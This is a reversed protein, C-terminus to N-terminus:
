TDLTGSAYRRMSRCLQDLLETAGNIALPVLVKHTPAVDLRRLSARSRTGDLQAEDDYCIFPYYTRERKWFAGGILEQHHQSLSARLQTVTARLEVDRLSQDIERLRNAADTIAHRPNDLYAKAEGATLGVDGCDYIAVLDLGHDNVDYKLLTKALVTGAPHIDAHQSSLHVLLHSLGELLWPYQTSTKYDTTADEPGIVDLVDRILDTEVLVEDLLARRISLDMQVCQAICGVLYVAAAQLNETSDFGSVELVTHTECEQTAFRLGGKLFDLATAVDEELNQLGRYIAQGAM